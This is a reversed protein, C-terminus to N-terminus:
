LPNGWSFGSNQLIGRTSDEGDGLTGGLREMVRTKGNGRLMEGKELEFPATAVRVRTGYSVPLVVALISEGIQFVESANARDNSISNNHLLADDDLGEVRM